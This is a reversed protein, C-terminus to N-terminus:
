RILQLRHYPAKEADKVTNSDDADYEVGDKLISDFEDAYMQLYHKMMVQFRDLNDNSNYKTLQPCAYSGIVKYVSLRKFQSDTLLTANMETTNLLSIDRYTQKVYVPYWKIRLDREIDARALAHYDNPTTFSSIGFGLIDPQYVQLDTDTSFNAM